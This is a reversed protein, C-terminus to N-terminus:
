EREREKFKLLLVILVVSTAVLEVREGELFFFLEVSAAICHKPLISKM